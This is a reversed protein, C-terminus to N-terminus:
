SVWREFGKRMPFMSFIGVRREFIKKFACRRDLIACRQDASLDIADLDTGETVTSSVLQCEKGSLSPNKTISGMVDKKRVAASVEYEDEGLRERGLNQLDELRVLRLYRCTNQVDECGGM